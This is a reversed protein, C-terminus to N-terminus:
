DAALRDEIDRKREEDHDAEASPDPTPQWGVEAPHFVMKTTNHGAKIIGTAVTTRMHAPRSEFECPRGAVGVRRGMHHRKGSSGREPM